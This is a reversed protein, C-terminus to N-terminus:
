KFVKQIGVFGQSPAGEENLRADGKLIVPDAVLYVGVRLGRNALHRACVFGDGANNGKGCVLGINEAGSKAIIRAAASGANEM